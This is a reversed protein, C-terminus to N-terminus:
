ELALRELTQVTKAVGCQGQMFSFVDEATLMRQVAVEVSVMLKLRALAAWEGINSTPLEREFAENVKFTVCRTDM